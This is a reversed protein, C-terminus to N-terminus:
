LDKKYFFIIFLANLNHIISLNKPNIIYANDVRDKFKKM